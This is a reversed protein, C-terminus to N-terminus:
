GVSILRIILREVKLLLDQLRKGIDFTYIKSPCL